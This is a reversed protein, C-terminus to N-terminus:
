GKRGAASHPAANDNSTSGQPDAAHNGSDSPAYGGPPIAVAPTVAFAMMIAFIAGFGLGLILKM